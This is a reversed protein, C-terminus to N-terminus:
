NKFNILGLAAEGLVVSNFRELRIGCVLRKRLDKKRWANVNSNM